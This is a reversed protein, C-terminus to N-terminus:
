VAGGARRLRYWDNWDTPKGSLDLGAFDPVLLKAGIALAAARAKTLGPNGETWRDDDACLVIEDRPHLDRVHRAVALLNGANFGCYVAAGVEEHLTAATAFGECVLVEPRRIEDALLYYGGAVRGGTLFRKTGDPMITQVSVIEGDAIVPVLLGIGQQRIGHPRISKTSLYLHAADAPAANQWLAAAREAAQAQRDRTEADRQAKASEVLRRIDMLQAPSQREGTATWRHTEGTRWSGFAGAPTGDLHLLYWGNRSGPRDGEVHFRHLKGDPDVSPRGLGAAAIAVAFDSPASWLAEQCRTALCGPKANSYHLSENKSEIRSGTPQEGVPEGGSELACDGARSTGPAMFTDM